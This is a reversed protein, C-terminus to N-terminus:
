QQVNVNGGTVTFTGGPIRDDRQTMTRGSASFEPIMEAPIAQSGARVPFGRAVLLQKALDIPIHVSGTSKNLYGYSELAQVVSDRYAIGEALPHIEHGPALQLRPEPPLLETKSKPLHTAVANAKDVRADNWKFIGYVLFYTFVMGVGLWILFQYVSRVNIDGEEHHVEKNRVGAVDLEQPREAHPDNLHSRQGKIM